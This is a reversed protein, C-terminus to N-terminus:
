PVQIAKPAAISFTGEVFEAGAGDTGFFAGTSTAPYYTSNIGNIVAQASKYTLTRRMSVDMGLFRGTAYIRETGSESTKTTNLAANYVDTITPSQIAGAEVLGIVEELHVLPSGPKYAYFALQRDNDTCVISYGSISSILGAQRVRDLVFANSLKTAVMRTANVTTAVGKGTKSTVPLTRVSHVSGGFTVAGYLPGTFPPPNASAGPDYSWVTGVGGAGGEKNWGYLRGGSLIMGDPYKGNPSNSADLFQALTQQSTGDLKISVLGGMGGDDLGGWRMGIYLLTGDTALCIPSYPRESSGSYFTKVIRYDTGDTNISYLFGNPWSDPGGPLGGGQMVGYLKGNLLVVSRGREGPERWLDGGFTHLRQYGAGDKNIKFITGKGLIGGRETVGYMVSGGGDTLEYPSEGDAGGQFTYLEEPEGGTLNRRFISRRGDHGYIYDGEVFALNQGFVLESWSATGVTYIFLKWTANSDSWSSILVRESAVVLSVPSRESSAFDRLKEFQTGDLNVRYFTGMGGAGGLSTIGYLKGGIVAGNGFPGGGELGDAAFAKLVKFQGADASAITLSFIALPLAFISLTKM